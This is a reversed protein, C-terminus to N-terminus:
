YSTRVRVLLEKTELDLVAFMYDNLDGEKSECPSKKSYMLDDGATKCNYIGSTVNLPLQKINKDYLQDETPNYISGKPPLEKGTMEHSRRLTETYRRLGLMKTLFEKSPPMPKWSADKQANKLYDAFQDDSFQFRATINLGERGFWGYEKPSVDIEALKVTKPIGFESRLVQEDSPLGCSTVIITVIAMIGMIWNKNGPTQHTM